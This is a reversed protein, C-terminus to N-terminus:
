PTAIFRRLRMEIVNAIGSRWDLSGDGVWEIVMAALSQAMADPSPQRQTSAFRLAFADARERAREMQVLDHKALTRMHTGVM